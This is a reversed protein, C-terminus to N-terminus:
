NKSIWPGIKGNNLQSSVHQRLSRFRSQECAVLADDRLYRLLATASGNFRDWNQQLLAIIEEDTKRLREPLTPKRLADMAERVQQRAFELPLAQGGLVAVFHRLARQPFDSRTGAHGALGELREDYPMVAAQLRTPLKSAGHSSTLIRLRRVDDNSLNALDHALLPLYASPVALLFLASPSDTVLEAFSRRTGFTQVLAQWWDAASKGLRILCRHLANDPTPSVTVNYSPIREDSRLLGHGASVIYLSAALSDATRKAETISRGAYLDVAAHLEGEGVARVQRQWGCALDCLSEFRDANELALVTGTKKKRNTCSTVVIVDRTQNM